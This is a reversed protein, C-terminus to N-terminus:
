LLAPAMRSDFVKASIAPDFLIAESKGFGNQWRPTAGLFINKGIHHGEYM